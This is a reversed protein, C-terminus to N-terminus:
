SIEREGVVIRKGDSLRGEAEEREDSIKDGEMSKDMVNTNMTEEDVLGVKNIPDLHFVMELPPM